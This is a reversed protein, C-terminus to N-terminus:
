AKRRNNYTIVEIEKPRCGHYNTVKGDATTIQMTDDELWDIAIVINGGNIGDFEEVPTKTERPHDTGKEIGWRFTNKGDCYRVIVRNFLVGLVTNVLGLLTTGRVYFRSKLYDRNMIEGEQREATIEM